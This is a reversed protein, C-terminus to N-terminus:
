TGDTGGPKRASLFTLYNLTTPLDELDTFGATAIMSKLEDVYGNKMAHGILRTLRGIFTRSSDTLDVTLLRGGPKLVRSIEGFGLAKVDDPLHHLMLSSLVADFHGDPFPLREVPAVRFEAAVNKRAAKRCALEVMEPSADIGSVAGGPQVGQWAAIALTGTGCGVDLVREGPALTAAAITERRIAPEQGFTLVWTATDYFGAWWRITRGQTEPADATTM